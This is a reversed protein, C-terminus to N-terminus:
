ANEDVVEKEAAFLLLEEALLGAQRRTLQIYDFWGDDDPYHKSKTVQICVGRGEGGWFRTQKIETGPVVRLDTSM